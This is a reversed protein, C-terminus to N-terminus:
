IFSSPEMLKGDIVVQLKASLKSANKLLTNAKTEQKNMGCHDIDNRLDRVFSWATRMGSITAISQLMTEGDSNAAGSDRNALANLAKTVEDRHDCDSLPMGVHVVAFSVLWERALSVAQMIQQHELYWQILKYENLLQENDSGSEWAMWSYKKALVSLQSALPPAFAEIERTATTLNSNLDQALRPIELPRAISLANSINNLTNSLGNLHRPKGHEYETRKQRYYDDNLSELVTSLPRADGTQKFMALAASWEIIDLFPQLNIIPTEQDKPQGNVFAGYYVGRIDTGFATKTFIAAAAALLPIARFSHTIDLAVTGRSSESIVRFIEWMEQENMTSPIEVPSVTAELHQCASTLDALKIASEPTHLVVITHPKLFTGLAAAVFCSSHTAGNMTYTALEYKGLGLFTILNLPSEM